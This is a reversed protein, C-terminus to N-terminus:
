YLESMPDWPPLLTPKTKLLDLINQPLRSKPLVITLLYDDFWNDYMSWRGGKGIDTGWSNEVLWKVPKANVIDVGTFVMGHTPTVTRTLLRDKKSLALNINFLTEYDFIDVAMIGHDREMYHGVDAAFWVPISDKVAALTLEKITAIDLNIFDMDPSEFVNRCYEMRYYKNYPHMAHDFIVVYESLDVGVIENYFQKPTYTKEVIKEDKDCYKWIFEQPPRGLNYVLLRYVDALMAEKKAQIDKTKIKDRVMKRLTIANVRLLNDVIYNLDRSKESNITEGMAEKPVAGYKDILATFYNWWGGDSVPAELYKQLLRDNLDQDATAIMNELFLNAKELKDYFFLYNQSFEFSTLNYKKLVAPRMINFSAFMWCRGTSKQDTIGETKIKMSFIDNHRNVLERNLTLKKLDTGSAANSIARDSGDLKLQQDFTRILEPSINGSPKALVLSSILFGHVMFIFTNKFVKKM